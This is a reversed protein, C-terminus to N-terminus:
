MMLMKFPILDIRIAIPNQLTSDKNSRTALSPCMAKRNPVLRQSRHAYWSGYM